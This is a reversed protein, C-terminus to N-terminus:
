VRWVRRVKIGVPLEASNGILHSISVELPNGSPIFTLATRFVNGRGNGLVFNTVAFRINEYILSRPFFTLRCFRIGSHPNAWIQRGERLNSDLSLAWQRRSYNFNAM